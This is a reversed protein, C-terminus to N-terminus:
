GPCALTARAEPLGLHARYERLDADLRRLGARSTPSRDPQGELAESLIAAPSRRGGAQRARPTPGGPSNPSHQGRRRAWAVSTGSLGALRIRGHTSPLSLVGRRRGSRGGHTLPSRSLGGSRKSLHQSVVRVIRVVRHHRRLVNLSSARSVPGAHPHEAVATRLAARLRQASPKTWPSPVLDVVTRSRWDLRFWRPARCSCAFGAGVGGRARDMALESSESWAIGADAFLAFDLGLRVAFKWFDWRQLRLLNFSYEATGILQDKGYLTRGLDGIQYGRISNAGGMRYILYIPIDEGVTGSQLSLLSSLLLRQRKATPFWRRVDLNM